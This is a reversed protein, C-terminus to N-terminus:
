AGYDFIYKPNIVKYAVDANSENVWSFPEYNQRILVDTITRKEDEVLGCQPLEKELLYGREDERSYRIIEIETPSVIEYELTWVSDILRRTAKM